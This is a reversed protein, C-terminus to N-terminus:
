AGTLEELTRRVARCRAFYADGTRSRPGGTAERGAPAIETTLAPEKHGALGLGREDAMARSGGPSQPGLSAQAGAPSEEAVLTLTAPSGALVAVQDGLYVAEEVGHTVLVVTVASERQLVLLDDQLEERTMADLASFPEDLLLVAPRTVLTRALAVRQREGGSLEHPFRDIWDALRVRELSAIMRRRRAACPVGAVRLAVDINEGVTYWPFLGFTQMVLGTRGDGGCTPTGAITIQGEDLDKLGAIALLLTTKGVGSRGVIALTRGQAVDFSLGRFVFTAGYSAACRDAVIM